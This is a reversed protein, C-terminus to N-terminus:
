LGNRELSAPCVDCVSSELPKTVSADVLISVACCPGFQQVASGICLLSSSSSSEMAFASYNNLFEQSCIIWFSWLELSRLKALPTILNAFLTVDKVAALDICELKALARKVKPDLSTFFVPFPFFIRTWGLLFRFHPLPLRWTTDFPRGTCSWSGVELLFRLWSKALATCVFVLLLLFDPDWVIFDLVFCMCLFFYSFLSIKTFLCHFTRMINLM